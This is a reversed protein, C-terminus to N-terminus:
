SRDPALLRYREALRKLSAPLGEMAQTKGEFYAARHLNGAAAASRVERTLEGAEVSVLEEVIAAFEQSAQLEQLLAAQAHTM